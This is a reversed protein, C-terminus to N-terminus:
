KRISSASYVGKGLYAIILIKFIIGKIITAPDIITSIIITTLYLLLGLLIAVLPKKSTWSGLLLYIIGLVVNTVLVSADQDTFFFIFGFLMTVGAIIYLVNRASKIKKDADLENSKKMINRAHFQAVDKETGHEPFGCEPCFVTEAIMLTNCKSCELNKVETLIPEEM